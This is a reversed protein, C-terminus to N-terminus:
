LILTADGYSYFRYNNELAHGYASKILDYGAFACVLMLLSSKPLHFNTIMAQVIKFEYGPYIFLNSFGTKEGTAAITELARTTTTGVAVVRSATQIKEWASPSCSYFEPDIRHQTVDSEKVPRFTGPGVHLTIKCIDIHREKLESFVRRTFHMGATPAAVSGPNKAYITQYRQRDKEVPARHIYPPLPIQGQAALLAPVDGEFRILRGMATQKLVEAQMNAITFITGPKFHNGPFVMCDWCFEEVERVFLIEGREFLVRAPIVRTENIVLLDGSKLYIPLNRFHSDEFTKHGRSIVLLRSADRPTVPFQAIRDAPLEYNYSELSLLDSKM